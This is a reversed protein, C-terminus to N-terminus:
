DAHDTTPGLAARAWGTPVLGPRSPGVALCICSSESHNPHVCCRLGPATVGTSQSATRLDRMALRFNSSLPGEPARALASARARMDLWPNPM